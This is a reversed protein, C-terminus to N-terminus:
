DGIMMLVQNAVIVAGYMDPGEADSQDHFRAYTKIKDEDTPGMYALIVIRDKVM